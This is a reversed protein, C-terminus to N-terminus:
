ENQAVEPKNYLIQQLLNSAALFSFRFDIQTKKNWFHPLNQLTEISNKMSCFSYLQSTHQYM